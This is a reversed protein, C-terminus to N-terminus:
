AGEPVDLSQWGDDGKRRAPRFRARVLAHQDDNLAHLVGMLAAQDPLEGRLTAQAAGQADTGNEVTLGRLRKATSPHVHGRVRIEYRAAEAMTPPRKSAERESM